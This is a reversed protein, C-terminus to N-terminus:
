ETVYQDTVYTVTVLIRVQTRRPHIILNAIDFSDTMAHEECILGSTNM